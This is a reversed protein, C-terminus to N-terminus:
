TIFVKPSISITIAYKGGFSTKHYIQSIFWKTTDINFHTIIESEDPIKDATFSFEKTGTSKDEKSNLFPYKEIETSNLIKISSPQQKKRLKLFRDRVYNPAVTKDIKKAITIWRFGETNRQTEVSDFNGKLYCDVKEKINM